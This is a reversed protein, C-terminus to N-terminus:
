RTVIIRAPARVYVTRLPYGYGGTTTTATTGCRPCHAPHGHLHHHRGAPMTSGALRAVAAPNNAVKTATQQVTRPLARASIRQQRVSRQANQVIRPVAKVGQAGQARGLTRAAHSVGKVLQQRTARPLQGVRPMTRRIALAALVPAAADLNDQQEALDALEDLADMEDAGDALMKGAIGAIRGVLQAQPIPIASAIPAVVRAVSGIARGIKKLKGFFEDNSDAGLADAIAADLSDTQDWNDEGFDTMQDLQDLSDGGGVVRTVFSDEEAGDEEYSEEYEEFGAEGEAEEAYDGVPASEYRESMANEKSEQQRSRERPLILTLGGAVSDSDCSKPLWEHLGRDSLLQQM